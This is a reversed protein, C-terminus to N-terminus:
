LAAFLRWRHRCRQDVSAWSVPVPRSLTVVPV